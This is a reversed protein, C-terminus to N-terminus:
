DPRDGDLGVYSSGNPRVMKDLAQQLRRTVPGPGASGVPNGDITVVPTVDVTTGTIFAEDIRGLEQAFIAERRVEIACDRCIELVAQRTIGNLITNNAPATVVCGDRVVMFNSHSGELLVGDRVFLAEKVGADMAQQNALVNATLGVTKLDCRAWRQDTVTITSIGNERDKVGKEPDFARAEAFITLPTSLDPFGHKRPAAGRTVQIYVTADKNLRNKEILNRAVTALYGFDQVSLRLYFAGRNLRRIHDDTRFLTGDCARIVEYLGDAFLFGRDDPSIAISAKPLYEGNFFAIM